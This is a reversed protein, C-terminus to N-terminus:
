FADRPICTVAYMGNERGHRVRLFAVRQQALERLCAHFESFVARRLNEANGPAKAFRAVISANSAALCNAMNGTVMIATTWGKGKDIM